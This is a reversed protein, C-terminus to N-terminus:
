GYVMSLYKKTSTRSKMLGGNRLKQNLYDPFATWAHYARVNEDWCKGGYADQCAFDELRWGPLYPWVKGLGIEGNPRKIFM